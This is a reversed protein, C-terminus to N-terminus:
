SRGSVIMMRVVLGRHRRQRGPWRTRPRVLNTVGCLRESGHGRWKRLLVAPWIEAERVDRERVM